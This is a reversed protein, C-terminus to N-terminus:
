ICVAQHARGRHLIQHPEITTDILVRADVGFIEKFANDLDDKEIIDVSLAEQMFAIIDWIVVNGIRLEGSVHGNFSGQTLPLIKDSIDQYNLCVTKM